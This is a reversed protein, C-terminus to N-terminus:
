LWEDDAQWHMASSIRLLLPPKMTGHMEGVWVWTLAPKSWLTAAGPIPKCAAVSIRTSGTVGLLFLWVLVKRM